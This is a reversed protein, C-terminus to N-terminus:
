SNMVKVDRSSFTFREATGVYEVVCWYLATVCRLSRDSRVDDGIGVKHWGINAKRLSVHKTQAWGSVLMHGCRQVQHRNGFHTM